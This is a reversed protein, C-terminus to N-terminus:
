ISIYTVNGPPFLKLIASLEVYKNATTNLYLKNLPLKNTNNYVDRTVHDVVVCPLSEMGPWGLSYLLPIYAM